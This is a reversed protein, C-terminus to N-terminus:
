QLRVTTSMTIVKGDLFPNLVMSSHTHTAQVTLYFGSPTGSTCTSGCIGSATYTLPSGSACSCTRNIAPTGCDQSGGNCIFTAAVNGTGLGSAGTAFTILQSTNLTTASRQNYAVLATDAVASSLQQQEVLYDAFDLIPLFAFFVLVTWLAFEIAVSGSQDCGLTHYPWLRRRM